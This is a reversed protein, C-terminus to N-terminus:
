ITVGILLDLSDMELCRDNQKYKCMNGMIYKTIGKCNKLDSQPKNKTMRNIKKNRKTSKLICM